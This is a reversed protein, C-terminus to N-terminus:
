AANIIRDLVQAILAATHDWYHTHAGPGICFEIRTGHPDASIKEPKGAPPDWDDAPHMGVPYWRYSSEDPRWLNRGVYDGSRFANVWQAAGLPGPDPTDYPNLDPPKYDAPKEEAGRAWEYLYSFRLGYLQRLPCGMTFLYVPLKETGLGELEADYVKGSEKARAKETQVFRLLDATIVAGQSHAIIVVAQYGQERDRPDRWNV